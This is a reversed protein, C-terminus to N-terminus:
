SLLPLLLRRLRRCDFLRGISMVAGCCGQVLHWHAMLYARMMVLQFHPWYSSNLTRLLGCQATNANLHWDLCVRSLHLGLHFHVHQRLQERTMVSSLKCDLWDLLEKSDDTNSLLVDSCVLSKYPTLLCSSKLPSLHSSRYNLLMPLQLHYCHSYRQILYYWSVLHGWNYCCCDHCYRM